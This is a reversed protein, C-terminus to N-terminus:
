LLAMAQILKEQAHQLKYVDGELIECLKINENLKTSKIKLENKKFDKKNIKNNLFLSNTIIIKNNEEVYAPNTLSDIIKQLTKKIELTM